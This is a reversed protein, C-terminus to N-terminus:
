LTNALSYILFWLIRERKSVTTGNLADLNQLIDTLETKVETNSDLFSLLLAYSTDIDNTQLADIAKLVLSKSYDAHSRRISLKYEVESLTIGRNWLNLLAPQRLGSLQDVEDVTNALRIELKRFTLSPDDNSLYLIISKKDRNTSIVKHIRAQITM